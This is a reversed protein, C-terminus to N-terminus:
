QREFKKIFRRLMGKEDKSLNGRFLFEGNETKIKIIKDNNRNIWVTLLKTLNEMVVPALTIILTGWVVELGSKSTESRGKEELFDIKEVPLAAIDSKLSKTLNMLEIGDIKQSSSIELTANILDNSM